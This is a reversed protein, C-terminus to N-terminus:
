GGAPVPDRLEAGAFEAMGHTFDVMARFGLRAAALDPSAVVHRVDGVRWGGVVEPAPGGTAAALAAALEGV